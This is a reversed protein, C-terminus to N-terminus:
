LGSVFSPDIAKDPDVEHQTAGQRHWFAAADKVLAYVRGHHDRTGMAQKSLGADYLQITTLDGAVEAPQEKVAAGVVQQGESSNKQFWDMAEYYARTFARVTARYRDVFDRRFAFSDVILDPYQKSSVLVRGFSAKAARGLWPEWTVAVDVRGALFAAGADGSTMNQEKVDSLSLGNEQLVRGLFWESPSGQSVAVTRGKLARVSAIDNRALIGDGGLSADIPFVQVAPVGQSAARAFADVTSAMGQLQGANLANFRQVPDEVDTFDVTLGRKTWFSKRDATYLAAYGPWTPLAVQITGGYTGGGGSSSGGCAALTLATATLLGLCAKM